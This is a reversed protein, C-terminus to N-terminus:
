PKCCANESVSSDCQGMKLTNIQKNTQKYITRLLSDLQSYLLTENSKSKSKYFAEPDKWM